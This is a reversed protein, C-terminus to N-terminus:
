LLQTPTCRYTSLFPIPCVCTLSSYEDDPLCVCFLSQLYWVGTGVLASIHVTHVCSTNYFAHRLFIRLRFFFCKSYISAARGKIHSKKNYRILLSADSLKTAMKADNLILLSLLLQLSYQKCSLLLIVNTIYIVNVTVAYFPFLLFFVFHCCCALLVMFLLLVKRGKGLHSCGSFRM